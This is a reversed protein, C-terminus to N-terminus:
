PRAAAAIAGVARPIKPFVKGGPRVFSMAKPQKPAPAGRPPINPFIKTLHGNAVENALNQCGGPRHQQETDLRVFM